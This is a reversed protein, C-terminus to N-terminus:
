QRQAEPSRTASQLFVNGSQSTVVYSQAGSGILKRAENFGDRQSPDLSLEAEADIRGRTRVRLDLEGYIPVDAVINGTRTTLDYGQSAKGRMPWARIEGSDSTLHLYGTAAAVLTGERTQAVVDNDIRRVDIKGYTTTVEVLMGTPVFVALDVRGKRHGQVRVDTGRLPDSPYAVELAASDGLTDLAVQEIEPRVGLRQIVSRVGILRQGTNRVVVNGHPNVIRIRRIDTGLALDRQTRVITYPLSTSAPDVARQSPAACGALVLVGAALARWRLRACAGHPANTRTRRM